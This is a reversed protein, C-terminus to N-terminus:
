LEHMSSLSLENTISITVKLFNLVMLVGGDRSDLVEGDVLDLVIGEGIWEGRKFLGFIIPFCVWLTIWGSCNYDCLDIIWNDSTWSNLGIGSIGTM